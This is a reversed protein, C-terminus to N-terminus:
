VDFRNRSGNFKVSPPGLPTGDLDSFTNEKKDRLFGAFLICYNALDFLTDEISEDKVMLVGKDIFSGIRAFKDTMRTFFGIECISEKNIFHGVHRFNNFPDDGSGAYDANKAKTIAVMRECTEQHFRLYQEKTM